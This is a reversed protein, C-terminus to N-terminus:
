KDYELVRQDRNIHEIPVWSGGRRSKYERRKFFNACGVISGYSILLMGAFTAMQVTANTFISRAISACDDIYCSPLSSLTLEVARMVPWQNAIHYEEKCAEWTHLHDRCLAVRENALAYEIRAKTINSWFSFGFNVFHLALVGIIFRAVWKHTTLWSLVRLIARVIISAM